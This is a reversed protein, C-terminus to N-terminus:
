LGEPKPFRAWLSKALLWIAPLIAFILKKKFLAILLKSSLLATLSIGLVLMMLTGFVGFIVAYGFFVFLLIRFKYWRPHNVASREGKQIRQFFKEETM